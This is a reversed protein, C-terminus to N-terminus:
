KGSTQRQRRAFMVTVTVLMVMMVGLIGAAITATFKDTIGPLVYGPIIQYVSSQAKQIFGYETAVWELGDPRISALPSLIVLILAILLGAIWVVRGKVSRAEGPQILEPRSAMLFSLAGVTILGEGIGILTHVGAMAPIALDAPSTGSIALQIAVALSAVFVSLWAASFGAILIGRKTNGALRIGTRFAMYSVTVGIVGMNFINAGLVLLGGDQFILAQVSVVSTMILIAAWPGALITAIAAGMLHGSTGGAVAFNLMQGAFIGAALVGLLPLGREDLDQGVRRLSYGVVLISVIWLIVSVLVSLFGDPIHMAEIPLLM